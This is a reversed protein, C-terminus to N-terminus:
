LSFRTEIKRAIEELLAAYVPIDKDEMQRKLGVAWIAVPNNGIKLSVPVALACIGEIYEEKDIAVGETRTERIMEMYKKKNTCSYRTFKKLENKSLIDQVEDDSLQALLIKGGAGALLPIRMGIESSIKIDFASDVKDLIIARLGSRIGLFASLKTKQNIENLCPHVTTILESSTGATKGLLYLKTGFRFKNENENELIGIGVLTHLINFVTSKHYGLAKSIDTIGLPNKSKAFLDLMSFCKEIAPVPKFGKGM